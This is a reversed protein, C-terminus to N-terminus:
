PVKAQAHARVSEHQLLLCERNHEELAFALNSQRQWITNKTEHNNEILQCYWYLHCIALPTVTANVKPCCTIRKEPHKNHPTFCKGKVLDHNSDCGARM